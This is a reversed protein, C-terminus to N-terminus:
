TLPEREWIWEGEPSLWGHERALEKAREAQAATPPEQPLVSAEYPIVEQPKALLWGPHEHSVDSVRRASGTAAVDEAQKQAFILHWGEFRDKMADPLPKIPLIRKETFDEPERILKVFGAGELAEEVETLEVPFPGFEERIYTAGTLPEGTDLYVGFDTYFLTKALKTRGFHVDDQRLHAVYLVLAEFRDRDFEYQAM